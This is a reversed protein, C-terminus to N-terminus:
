RAEQVTTVPSGDDWIIRVEPFCQHPESARDCPGCTMLGATSQVDVACVPCARHSAVHEHVCGSTVACVAMDGCLEPVVPNRLFGAIFRCREPQYEEPPRAVIHTKGM